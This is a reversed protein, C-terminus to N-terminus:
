GLRAGMVSNEGRDEVDPLSAGNTMSAQGVTGAQSKVRAQTNAIILRVGSSVAM